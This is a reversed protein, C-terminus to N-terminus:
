KWAVFFLGAHLKIVLRNIGPIMAAIRFPYRLLPNKEAIQLADEFKIRYPPARRIDVASFGRVMLVKRLTGASFYQFHMLIVLWHHRGLLRAHWSKMDPVAGVLCGGESLLGRLASTYGGVDELHELVDFVTIVDFAGPKSAGFADLTGRFVDHGRGRAAQVAWESLEMGMVDYGAERAVDLFIGTSCGFDLLRGKQPVIREKLELFEHFNEIRLSETAEYYPDVVKAYQESADM